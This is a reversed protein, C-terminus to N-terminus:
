KYRDDHGLRRHSRAKVKQGGEKTVALWGTIYTCTYHQDGIEMGQTAGLRSLSSKVRCVVLGSPGAVDDLGHELRAM